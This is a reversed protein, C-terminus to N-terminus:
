GLKDPRRFAGSQYEPPEVGARQLASTVHALKGELDHVRQTIEALRRSLIRAISIAVEPYDLMTDILEESAVNLVHTPALATATFAHPEGPQLGLEGFGMGPLRVSEIARGKRMEVQGEVILFMGKNAEGEKFIVQGPDFQLERGRTALQALPETPVLTFAEFSKLIATKEILTLTDPM